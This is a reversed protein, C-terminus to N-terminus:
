WSYIPGITQMSGPFISEHSSFLDSHWVDICMRFLLGVDTGIGENAVAIVLVAPVQFPMCTHLSCSGVLKSFLPPAIPPYGGKPSCYHGLGERDM